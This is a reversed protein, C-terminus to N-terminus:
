VGKKVADKKGQAYGMKYMQRGSNLIRKLARGRDCDCPRIPNMEGYVRVHGQGLDSDGHGAYQVKTTAYGKGYCVKCGGFAQMVEKEHRVLIGKSARLVWALVQETKLNLKGGSKPQFASRAAKEFEELKENITKM